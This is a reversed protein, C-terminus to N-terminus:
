HMVCESVASPCPSQYTRNAAAQAAAAAASAQSAALNAQEAAMRANAAAQDYPNSYPPQYSHPPPPCAQRNAQAQVRVAVVAHTDSKTELKSAIM